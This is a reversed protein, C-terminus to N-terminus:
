GQTLMIRGKEHILRTKHFDGKIEVLATLFLHQFPNEQVILKNAYM